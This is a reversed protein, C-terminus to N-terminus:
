EVLHQGVKKDMAKHYLYDALAIDFMAMGVVKYFTSAETNINRNNNKILHGLTYVFDQNLLGEDIPDILDGSEEKAYYVDTYVESIHTFLAPPYERMDPRYSGIGIFHKNKFLDPNDPIVPTQSYTTTIVLDSNTVLDIPDSCIEIKVDKLYELEKYKRIETELYEKLTLSADPYLDYIYINKINHRVKAAFVIQYFALKSAGIVGISSISENTTYKVGVAGVAAARMSTIGEGDLLCDIKGTRPNNLIVM